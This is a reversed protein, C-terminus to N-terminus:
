AGVLAQHPSESDLGNVGEHREHWRARSFGPSVARWVLWLFVRDADETLAEGRDGKASIFVADIKRGGTRVESRTSQVPRTPHCPLTWM